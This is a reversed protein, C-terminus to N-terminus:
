SAASLQMIRNQIEPKWFQRPNTKRLEKLKELEGQTDTNIGLAETNVASRPNAGGAASGFDMLSKFGEVSTQATQKVLSLPIGKSHAIRKMAELAKSEDGYREVMIRNCTDENALARNTQERTKIKEEILSDFDVDPTKNEPITNEESTNEPTKNTNVKALAEEVTLRADLDKRLEAMEAELKEIHQDAAVKGKALAENDTFKKGEGVLTEYHNVEGEEKHTDFLSM